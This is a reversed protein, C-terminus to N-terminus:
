SRQSIPTCTVQHAAWSRDRVYCDLLAHPFHKFLRTGKSYIERMEDRRWGGGVWVAM